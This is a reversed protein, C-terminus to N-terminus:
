QAAVQARVAPGAGVLVFEEVAEGLFGGFEFDVASRGFAGGDSVEGDLERGEFAAAVGDGAGVGLGDGAPGAEEDFGEVGGGGGLRGRLSKAARTRGDRVNRAM